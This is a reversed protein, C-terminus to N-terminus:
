GASKDAPQYRAADERFLINLIKTSRNASNISSNAYQSILRVHIVVLACPILRSVVIASTM